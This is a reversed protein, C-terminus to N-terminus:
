NILKSTNNFNQFNNMNTGGMHGHDGMSGGMNGHRGMYEKNGMGGMGNYGRRSKRKRPGNIEEISSGMHAEIDNMDNYKMENDNHYHVMENNQLSEPLDHLNRNLSDENKHNFEISSEIKNTQNNKSDKLLNNQNEENKESEKLNEIPKVNVNNRIGTNVNTLDLSEMDVGTTDFEDDDYIEEIKPRKQAANSSLNQPVNDSLNFQNNQHNTGSIIFSVTFFLIIFLNKM